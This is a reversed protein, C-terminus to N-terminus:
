QYGFRKYDAQYFNEVLLRAKKDIEFEVPIRSPGNVHPVSTSATCLGITNLIIALDEQFKEYRGVMMKQRIAEPLPSLWDSMPRMHPIYESIAQLKTCLINFSPAQDQLFLQFQTDLPFPCDERYQNLGGLQFYRYCSLLRSLPHRVITFIFSYTDWDSIANVATRSQIKGERYHLFTGNHVCDFSKAQASEKLLKRASLGGTKALHVFLIESM